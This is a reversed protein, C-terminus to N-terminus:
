LLVPLTGMGSIDPELGDGLRPRGTHSMATEPGRSFHQCARARTAAGGCRLNGDYQASYEDARKEFIM